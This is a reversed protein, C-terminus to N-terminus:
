EPQIIFLNASQGTVTLAGDLTVTGVSVANNEPDLVIMEANTGEFGTISFTIAQAEDARNVVIVTLAGDERTAVYASIYEDGVVEVAHLQDGFQKYLQYTYYTPRVEYNALLGWGGRGTGSQFDFYNVAFPEQLILRGLVDAWWIANYHSDPTAEGAINSSWHSNAETMAVPLAYGLVDISTQRVRDLIDDWEYVNQRLDELSTIPNTTSLPFPYRHVALVDILDGNVKLFESVWELGNSDVLPVPPYQSIDPGILVIDPDEALMAEAILRWERNLDETTYNEFLNPENGISWYTIDYGRDNAHRVLNVAQEPTGNELRVSIIVEANMQDAFRMFSDLQSTRIDNIDGWRGGPFRLLQIGSNFAENILEPSISQLPGYNAGYVFPSVEGVVEGADITILTADTQDQAFIPFSGLVILFIALFINKM